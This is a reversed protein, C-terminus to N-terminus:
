PPLGGKIVSHKKCLLRSRWTQVLWVLWEGVFRAMLIYKQNPSAENFGHPLANLNQFLSQIQKLHLLRWVPTLLRVARLLDSSFIAHTRWGGAAPDLPSAAGSGSTSSTASPPTSSGRARRSSNSSEAHADSLLPSGTTPSASGSSSPTAPKAAPVPPDVESGTSNKDNQVLLMFYPMNLGIQADNAELNSGASNPDGRSSPVANTSSCDVSTHDHLTADGFSSDPNKLIDPL